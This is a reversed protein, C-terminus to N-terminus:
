LSAELETKGMTLEKIKADLAMKESRFNDRAENVASTNKEQLETVLRNLNQNENAMNQHIFYALDNLFACKANLLILYKESFDVVNSEYLTQIEQFTIELNHINLTLTQISTDSLFQQNLEHFLQNLTNSSQVRCENLNDQKLEEERETLFDRLAKVSEKV